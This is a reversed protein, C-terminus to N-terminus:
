YARHNAISKLKSYDLQISYMNYILCMYPDLNAHDTYNTTFSNSVDTHNSALLTLLIKDFMGTKLVIAFWVIVPESWGSKIAVDAHGLFYSFLSILAILVTAKQQKMSKALLECM